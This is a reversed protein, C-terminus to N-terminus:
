DAARGDGGSRDEKPFRTRKRRCILAATLTVGAMFAIVGVLVYGGTSESLLTAGTAGGTGLGHAAPDLLVTVGILAAFLGATAAGWGHLARGDRRRRLAAARRHMLELREEATRM